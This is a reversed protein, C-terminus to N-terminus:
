KFLEDMLNNINKERMKTKDKDITINIVDGEKANPVLVKPINVVEGSPLEIVLFEGEIRDVIVQM